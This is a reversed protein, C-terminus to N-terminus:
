GYHGENQTGSAKDNNDTEKEEESAGEMTLDDEDDMTSEPTLYKKLTKPSWNQPRKM